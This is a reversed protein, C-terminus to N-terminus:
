ILCIEENDNKCKDSTTGLTILKKRKKSEKIQNSCTLRLVFRWIFFWSLMFHSLQVCCRGFGGDKHM